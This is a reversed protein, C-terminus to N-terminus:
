ELAARISTELSEMRSMFDGRLKTVEDKILAVDKKVADTDKALAAIDKKVADTDKALAAIDKKVGDGKLMSRLFQNENKLRKNEERTQSNIGKQGGGLKGRLEYSMHKFHKREEDIGQFKADSEEIRFWKLGQKLQLSPHM